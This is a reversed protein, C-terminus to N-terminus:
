HATDKGPHGGSIRDPYYADMDPLYCVCFIDSRDVATRRRYVIQINGAGGAVLDAVGGITLVAAGIGIGVAMMSVGFVILKILKGM